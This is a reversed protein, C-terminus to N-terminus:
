KFQAYVFSKHLISNNSIFGNLEKVPNSRLYGAM